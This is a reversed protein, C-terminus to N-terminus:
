PFFLNRFRLYVATSHENVEWVRNKILVASCVVAVPESILTIFGILRIENVYTGPIFKLFGSAPYLFGILILIGGIIPCLLAILYGMLSNKIILISSTLYLGAACLFVTRVHWPIIQNDTILFYLGICHMAGGCAIALAAFYRLPNLLDMKEKNTM